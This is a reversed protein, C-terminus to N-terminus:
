EVRRTVDEDAIGAVIDDALDIGRADDDRHGSVTVASVAAVTAGRGGSRKPGRGGRDDVRLPIEVDRITAVVGDAHHGCTDDSGERAAIVAM